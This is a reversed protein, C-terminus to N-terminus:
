WWLLVSIGAAMKVAFLIAVVRMLRAGGMVGVIGLKFVQNSMSAIVISRWATEPSLRGEQALRSVSLTIADMDTLGSVAAVVYLGRQDLYQRAATVALLVVAYLLAFYVASKLEAPNGQEPMQGASKRCFVWAALAVGASVAGLSLIPAGITEIHAPAVAAIETLVRAYVVTSAVVIVVAATTLAGPVHRAERARRSYSVTTATSSVAGGLLGALLLGARAGLWKYALYGGLGIGVVLVVMLWLHRPNLVDWPPGGWSEDPLVPLIVMSVLAFQMIARVDNEGLRNVFGHLIPKAHLLVAVGGGVVVGMAWAGHWVIAGVAFMVIMAIETTIGPEIAGGRLKYLNGIVACAVVGLMAAGVIWGGHEAALAASLAGLVTILPFTRIGAIHGSDRERQLGVLLGLALSIGLSGFAASLDM